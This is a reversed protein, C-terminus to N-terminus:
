KSVPVSVLRRLQHPFSELLSDGYRRATTSSTTLGQDVTEHSAPLRSGGAPVVLADALDGEAM